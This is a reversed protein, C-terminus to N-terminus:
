DFLDICGLEYLWSLISKIEDLASLNEELQLSELGFPTHSNVYDVLRNIAVQNSVRRIAGAAVLLFYERETVLYVPSHQHGQYRHADIKFSAPRYASRGLVGNCSAALLAQLRLLYRSRELIRDVKADVTIESLDASLLGGPIPLAGTEADESAELNLAASVAKQVLGSVTGNDFVGISLAMTLEPTPLENYHWWNAPIFLIEGPKAELVIADERYPAIDVHGFCIGNLSPKRNLQNGQFYSQPWFFMKKRGFAPILFTNCFDNHLGIWTTKYRGGIFVANIGVNPIGFESVYNYLFRSIRNAIRPNYKLCYDRTFTISEAKNVRMLYDVFESYESPTSPAEASTFDASLRGNINFSLDGARFLAGMLEVGDAASFLPEVFEAVSLVAPQRGDASLRAFESWFVTMTDGDM